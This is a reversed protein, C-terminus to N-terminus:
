WILYNGGYTLGGGFGVTILKDGRHLLGKEEMEELAIPVSAASTNAYEAINLYFKDISIGMRKAAAEIIRINAQHPVIYSIDDISLNNHALLHQITNVIVRVAFTYVQRGNMSLYLDEKQISNSNFPTRSGGAQRKLHDAGSGESRLSSYVIRSETGSTNPGVVAAGAGDGFLVCDRDQWNTVASLAEAGIVLIHEAGGAEILSRAIELGYVFSTCAALLDMAGARHAGIKDQVICATSPFGPHDPSASGVIIMDIDDATLGAKEMAKNAAPIALDSAAEDESAIHRYHIGTHSVIWEHSTDLNQSLEHNSIRKEPVYSSISQIYAKM